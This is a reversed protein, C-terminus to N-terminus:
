HYQPEDKLRGMTSNFYLYVEYRGTKIERKITGYHFQFPKGPQNWGITRFEKLRGMTSNFHCVRFSNETYFVEKLRGM